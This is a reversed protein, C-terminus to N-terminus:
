WLITISFAFDSNTVMNKKFKSMVQKQGEPPLQLALLVLQLVRPGGGVLLELYELLLEFLDCVFICHEPDTVNQYLDPDSHPHPYTCRPHM